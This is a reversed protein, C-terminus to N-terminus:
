RELHSEFQALRLVTLTDHRVGDLGRHILRLAEVAEECLHQFEAAERAVRRAELTALNAEANRERASSYEDNRRVPASRVRVIAEDWDDDADQTRATAVRVARGRLVVTTTLLHEVRDIRARVNRLYEVIDAPASESGPLPDLGARLTRAETVYGHLIAAIDTM